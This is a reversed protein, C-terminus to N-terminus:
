IDTCQNTRGGSLWGDHGQNCHVDVSTGLFFGLMVVPGGRVQPSKLGASISQCFHICLLM